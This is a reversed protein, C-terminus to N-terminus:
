QLVAIASSSLFCDIERLLTLQDVPDELAKKFIMRFSGTISKPQGNDFLDRLYATNPRL